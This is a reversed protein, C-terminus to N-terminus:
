KKVLPCTSKSLPQYAQDGPIVAKINNPTCSENILKSSDAGNGGRPGFDHNTEAKNEYKEERYFSSNPAVADM